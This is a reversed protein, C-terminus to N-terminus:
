SYRSSLSRAKLIKNMDKDSIKHKVASLYTGPLSNTNSVYVREEFSEEKSESGNHEKTSFMSKIVMINNHGFRGQYICVRDGVSYVEKTKPHVAEKIEKM